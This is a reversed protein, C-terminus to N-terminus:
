RASVEDPSRLLDPKPLERDPDDWIFVADQLAEAQPSGDRAAQVQTLRMPLQALPAEDFLMQAYTRFRQVDTNSRDWMVAAVGQRLADLLEARGAPSAPSETLILPRGPPQDTTTSPPCLARRPTPEQGVLDSWHARWPRTDDPRVNMSRVVVRMGTQGDTWDGTVCWHMVPLNILSLELWFEVLIQRTTKRNTWHALRQRVVRQLDAQRVLVDDDKSMQDHQHWVRLTCYDEDLGDPLLVFMIRHEPASGTQRSAPRASSRCAKLPEELGCSQAYALNWQQLKQSAPHALSAALHELFALFPPLGDPRTNRRM